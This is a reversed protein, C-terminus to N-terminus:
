KLLCVANQQPCFLLKKDLKGDASLVAVEQRTQWRGLSQQQMCGSACRWIRTDTQSVGM